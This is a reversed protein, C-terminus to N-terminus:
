CDFRCRESLAFPAGTTSTVGARSRLGLYSARGSWREMASIMSSSFAAANAAPWVAPRLVSRAARELVALEDLALRADPRELPDRDAGRELPRRAELAACFPAPIRSPANAHANNM